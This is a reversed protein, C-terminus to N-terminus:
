PSYQFARIQECTIARIDAGERLGLYWNVVAELGDALGWTPRWGLQARARSSDLKLYRAEHPHPGPDESVRLEGQWLKSLRVVIWAVPRADEEAPGFNWGSAHEPTEWLSQALLLYGSLPNLVHQWPRIAEPNRVRLPEGSLAARMLDPVLRDEAWDGGGIVNGARASAVRTGDPDAFFSRRYADTVLEACGKSNSYPDHGGMPESERYGWEWEQNDYCKDSTVNVVVRVDGQRRIADLLNVTGMVNTEYTERPEAFSRRVLSQAAMHIVIEPTHAALAGVIAAPDRIDAQVSQMSEGVKALEYLSPDTPVRDSFGSVVAGLSQLWLALWAGKFGTHGTLLVRKGQWFAPEVQSRKSPEVLSAKRETTGGDSSM